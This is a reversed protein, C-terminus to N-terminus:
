LYLEVYFATGMRRGNKTYFSKVSTSRVKVGVSIIFYVIKDRFDEYEGVMMVEDDTRNKDEKTDYDYECIGQDDDEFRPVIKRAEEVTDVIHLEMHHAYEDKAFYGKMKYDDNSHMGTPITITGKKL